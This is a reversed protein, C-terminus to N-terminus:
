NKQLLVIKIKIKDLFDSNKPLYLIPNSISVVKWSKSIKELINIFNQKKWLDLRHTFVFFGKRKTIKEINLILREPDKSYTMAGICSVLNYQQKFLFRKDFNLCKLKNYIKKKEAVSIIKSSIDIGDIILKPFQKLIEEAFLGTGCALDLVNFIEYSLNKKLIKVTKIPAKYDWKKLTKDYDSSWNNYYTKTQSYGGIGSILSKKSINKSKKPM